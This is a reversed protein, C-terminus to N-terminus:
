RALVVPRVWPAQGGMIRLLYTGVAHSGLDLEYAGGAAFHTFSARHVVRGTADCLELVVAHDAMSSAARVLILGTTPNPGISWDGRPVENVSNIMGPMRAIFMDANGTSTITHPAFTATGKFTGTLYITGSPDVTVVNVVEEYYLPIQQSSGMGTLSLVDGNSSWFAVFADTEGEPTLTYPGFETPANFFGGMIIRGEPDLALRSPKQRGLGGASRAWQLSGQTDYRVLYIEAEHNPALLQEGSFQIQGDFFFGTIIAGGEATVALGTGEGSVANPAVSWLVTGDADYKTLFPCRGSNHIIGGFDIQGMFYGTVYINGAADLAMQRGEGGSNGGSRKAWIFNGEADYKALLVDSGGPVPDALTDAGFYADGMIKGTILVNGQEDLALGGAVEDNVGGANVAWLINGLSDYKALFLDVGGHSVLTIGDFTATNKIVGYVYVNGEPDTCIDSGGELSASSGGMRAWLATGYPDYKAVFVDAAPGSALTHTGFVANLEAVGTIYINGWTDTCIGHGRDNASGGGRQVWDFTNQAIAGIGYTVLAVLIVIRGSSRAVRHAM